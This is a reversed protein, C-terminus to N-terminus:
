ALLNIYNKDYQENKEVLACVVHVLKNRVANLVSMKNKGEAVKREYYRKIPGCWRVASLAAMHLRKKLFKNAFRSVRPKSKVSTGSDKLYPVVGAHCSIKRPDNINKFNNTACILAVATERGIGPISEIIGQNNTIEEDKQLVEDIQKNIAVISKQTGMISHNLTEELIKYETKPIFKEMETLHREIQHKQKLLFERSSQLRKLETVIENDPVYIKLKNINKRLYIAIMIADDADTKNRRLGKSNAIEFPHEVVLDWSKTVAHAKFINCYLGTNEMGFLVNALTIGFRILEKELLAFGRGNNNIVGQLLVKDFADILAYDLTEKSVDIGLFHSKNQM